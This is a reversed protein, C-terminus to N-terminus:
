FIAFSFEIDFFEPIMLYDNHTIGIDISTMDYRKYQGEEEPIHTGQDLIAIEIDSSGWEVHDFFSCFERVGPGLLFSVIQNCKIGVSTIWVRHLDLSVFTQTLHVSVLKPFSGHIGSGSFQVLDIDVIGGFCVPNERHQHTLIYRGTPRKNLFVCFIGLYVSLNISLPSHVTSLPSHVTSLPCH